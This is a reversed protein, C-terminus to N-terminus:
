RTVENQINNGDMYTNLTRIGRGINACMECGYKGCIHYRLTYDTICFYKCSKMFKNINLMKHLQPKTSADPGSHPDFGILIEKLEKIDPFKACPIVQIPHKNLKLQKFRDETIEMQYSMLKSFTNLATSRLKLEDIRDEVSQGEWQKVLTKFM